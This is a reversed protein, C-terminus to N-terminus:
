GGRTWGGGQSELVSPRPRYLRLRKSALLSWAQKPAAQQEGPSSFGRDVPIRNESLLQRRQSIPAPSPSPSRSTRAVTNGADGWCVCMSSFMEHKSCMKSFMKHKKRCNEEVLSYREEAVGEWGRHMERARKKGWLSSQTVGVRVSPFKGWKMAQADKM